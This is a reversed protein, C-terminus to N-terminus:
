LIPKDFRVYRGGLTGLILTQNFLSLLMLIPSRHRDKQLLSDSSSTPTRAKLQNTTEHSNPPPPAEQSSCPIIQDNLLNM